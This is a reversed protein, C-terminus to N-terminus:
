PEYNLRTQRAGDEFGLRFAADYGKDFIEDLDEVEIEYSSAHSSAGVMTFQRACLFSCFHYTETDMDPYPFMEAVQIWNTPTQDGAHEKKCGDCVITVTVLERKTVEKYDRKVSM